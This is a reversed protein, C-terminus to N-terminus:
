SVAASLWRVAALMLAAQALGALLFLALHAALRKKDRVDLMVSVVVLALFIPLYLAGVSFMGLFCFAGLVGSTGWMFSGAFAARRLTLYASVLCLSSVEILYLAPLPWMGQYASVNKWVVATVAVCAVAGFITLIRELPQLVRADPQEANM